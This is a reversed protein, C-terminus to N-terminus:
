RSQYWVDAWVAFTNRLAHRDLGRRVLVHPEVAAVPRRAAGPPRVAAVVPRPRPRRRVEAVAVVVGVAVVPLRRRVRRARVGVLVGAGRGAAVRLHDEDAALRHVLDRREGRRRVAREVVVPRGPADVDGGVRVGVPDQHGFTRERDEGTVRRGAHPQAPDPHAAVRRDRVAAARLGARDREAAGVRHERSSTKVWIAPHAALIPESWPRTLCDTNLSLPNEPSAEVPWAPNPLPVSLRRRSPLTNVRFLRAWRPECHVTAQSAAATFSVWM